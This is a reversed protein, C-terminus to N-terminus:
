GCAGRTLKAQVATPVWVPESSGGPQSGRAFVDLEVDPLDDLEPVPECTM